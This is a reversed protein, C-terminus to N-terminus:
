ELVFEHHDQAVTVKPRNILVQQAQKLRRFEHRRGVAFGLALFLEFSIRQQLAASQTAHVVADIVALLAAEFGVRKLDVELEDRADKVRV